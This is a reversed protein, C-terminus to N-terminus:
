VGDGRMPNFATVVVLLSWWQWSVASVASVAVIPAAWQYLRVTDTAIILQLYAVILTTILQVSPAGLAVVCGGWPTILNPHLDLLYCHHYQKSAKIPHDLVWRHHENVTFTGPTRTLRVLLPVILGALLLPNWAFLAAFVPATEKTAGAILAAILAPIVQGHVMLAASCTAAGLAFADVLVPNSANFRTSPLALVLLAATIGAWGGILAWTGIATLAIGAYTAAQWRTPNRKCLAPLLVRLHYPSPPNDSIYCAGDPTVHIDTM